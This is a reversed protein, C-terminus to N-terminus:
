ENNVDDATRKRGFAFFFFVRRKQNLWWADGKMCGLAMHMKMWCVVRAEGETTYEVASHVLLSSQSSAM